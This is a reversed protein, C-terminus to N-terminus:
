AIREIYQNIRISSQKEKLYENVYIAVKVNDMGGHILDAKVIGAVWIFSTDNSSHGVLLTGIKQAFDFYTYHDIEAKEEDYKRLQSEADGSSIIADGVYANLSADFQVESGKENLLINIFEVVQHRDFNNLPIEHRLYYIAQSIPMGEHIQKAASRAYAIHTDREKENRAAEYLRLDNIFEPPCEDFKVRRPAEYQPAEHQEYTTM